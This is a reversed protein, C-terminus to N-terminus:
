GNVAHMLATTSTYYKVKAGSISELEGGVKLRGKGNGAIYGNRCPVLDRGPPPDVEMASVCFEQTGKAFDKSEVNQFAIRCQSVNKKCELRVGDRYLALGNAIYTFGHDGVTYSATAGDPNVELPAKAAILGDPFVYAKMGGINTPAPCSVGALSSGSIFFYGLLVVVRIVM